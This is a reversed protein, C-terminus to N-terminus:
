SRTAPPPLQLPADEEAVAAPDAFHSPPAGIQPRPRRDGAPLAGPTGRARRPMGRGPAMQGRSAGVGCIKSLAPAVRGPVAAHRRDAFWLRAGPDHQRRREAAAAADSQARRPDRRRACRDRRDRRRHRGARLADRAGSHPDGSRCLDALRGAAVGSRAANNGPPRPPPSNKPARGVGAGGGAARSAASRPGADGLGHRAAMRARRPARPHAGSRNPVARAVALRRADDPEPAVSRAAAALPRPM